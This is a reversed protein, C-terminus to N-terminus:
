ALRFGARDRVVRGDAILKELHAEVSLTALPWVDRPADDYALPLLAAPQEAVGVERLADFIKAERSLRHEVYGDLCRVADHIVGGHAPLLMSPKRRAMRRLSDLYAGMEGDNPEVLITGVGAVMDGAILAGSDPEYFCLHGPAHGPTHVAELRLAGPGGLPIVEGDAIERDFSVSGSLKKATLAHAWLPADLRDALKTAGGIHDPHHHTALIARLVRGKREEADVWAAIREVEAEYPSAPEVLVMDAHGVLFVNTHTAPPLTPTKVPLMRLGPAVEWLGAPPREPAFARSAVLSPLVNALWPALVDEGKAWTDALELISVFQAPADARPLPSHTWTAELIDVQEHLVDGAPRTEGLYAVTETDWALGLEAFRAHGAAPDEALQQRVEARQRALSLRQQKAVLVGTQVFLAGLAAIAAPDEPGHTPAHADAAHIEGTPLSTWDGFHVAEGPARTVLVHGSPGPTRLALAVRKRARSM